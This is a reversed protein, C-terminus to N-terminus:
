KLLILKKTEAFNDAVMRYYYVGSAFGSANWETTYVGAKMDKSILKSVQQGSSNYITLSVYTSRPVSFKITTSPNFPNPYNQKLEFKTPQAIEVNVINSYKFTGDNDMMKLRYSFVGFNVKTDTFSYQNPAVSNGAAHVSAINQWQKDGSIKKEVEFSFLNVETATKWNLKVNNDVVSVSFSTLEVPLTNQDNSCRVSFGYDKNNYDQFITNNYSYLFIYFVNSNDFISSSWFETSIDQELFVGIYHHYGALLATFGSTNTGVGEGTGQGIDKLANSSDGLKTSLANFEFLTPIHWGSPCIGKPISGTQYQMAENWQYLGGYKECNTSDDNYCYKEMIGNDTQNQSSNIFTGLNLNEKLWCQDGIVIKHYWKGAYNVSDLNQCPNQSYSVISFSFLFLLIFFTKM